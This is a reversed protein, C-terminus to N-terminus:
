MFQHSSVCDYLFCCFKLYLCACCFQLLRKDFIWVFALLIKKVHSFCKVTEEVIKEEWPSSEEETCAQVRHWLATRRFGRQWSYSITRTTTSNSVLVKESLPKVGNVRNTDGLFHIHWIHNSYYTSAHLEAAWVIPGTRLMSIEAFTIDSAHWANLKDPVYM